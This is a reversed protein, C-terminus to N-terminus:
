HNSRDHLKKYAEQDGQLAKALATPHDQLKEIKRKIEKKEVSVRSVKLWTDWISFSSSALMLGDTLLHFITLHAGIKLKGFNGLDILNWKNLARISKCANHAFLFLRDCKKQISNEPSFLFYQMNQQPFFLLNVLALVRVSAFGDLANNSAVSLANWSAHTFLEVKSLIEFGRQANKLAKEFAESGKASFGSLM